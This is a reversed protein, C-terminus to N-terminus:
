AALRYSQAFRDIRRKLAFRSLGVARAAATMDVDDFCILRLAKAVVPPAAALIAAADRRDDVEAFAAEASRDPYQEISPAAQLRGPGDVPLKVKRTQRTRRGAPTYSARVQRLAEMIRLAFVSQPKMGSALLTASDSALLGALAQNAVEDRIDEPVEPAREAVVRRVYRRAQRDLQNLHQRDGALAAPILANLRLDPSLAGM